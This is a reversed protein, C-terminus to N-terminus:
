IEVFHTAVPCDRDKFIEFNKRLNDIRIYLNLFGTTIVKGDYGPIGGQFATQAGIAGWWNGNTGNNAVMFSNSNNIKYIGGYNSGSVTYGTSTVKSVDAADVDGFVADYPNIYQVWRYKEASGSGSQQRQYIMFEYRTDLLKSILPLEWTLNSRSFCTNFNDSSSFLNSAPNNHNVLLRWVTYNNTDWFYRNADLQGYLYYMGEYFNYGDLSGKSSVGSM